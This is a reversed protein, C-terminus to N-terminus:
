VLIIPPNRTLAAPDEPKKFWVAAGHHQLSVPGSPGANSLLERITTCEGVAQGHGRAEESIPGDDACSVATNM